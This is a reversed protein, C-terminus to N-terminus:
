CGCEAGVCQLEGPRTRDSNGNWDQDEFRLGNNWRLSFCIRGRAASFLAHKKVNEQWLFNFHLSILYSYYFLFDLPRRNGSNQFRLTNIQMWLHGSRHPSVPVVVPFLAPLFVQWTLLALFFSPPSFLPSLSFTQETSLVQASLLSKLFDLCESLFDSCQIFM